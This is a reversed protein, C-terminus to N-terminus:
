DFILFKKFEPAGVLLNMEIFEHQKVHHQEFGRLKQLNM